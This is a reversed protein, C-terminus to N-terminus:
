EEEGKNNIEKLIEKPMDKTSMVIVVGYDSSIIYVAYCISEFIEGYELVNQTYDFCAKIEETTTGPLAYLIYGGDDTDINRDEGYETTLVRAFHYLIEKAKDDAKPITSLDSVNGIKYVM